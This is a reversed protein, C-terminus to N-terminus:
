KLRGRAISGAMVRFLQPLSSGEAKAIPFYHDCSGPTSSSITNLLEDVGPAVSNSAYSFTNSGATPLTAAPCPHNNAAVTGTAAARSRAWNTLGTGSNYPIPFFGVVYIEVNDDVNALNGDPGRKLRDALDIAEYDWSDPASVNKSPTRITTYTPYTSPVGENGLTTSPGQSFGDTMIVLVKRALGDASAANNRGNTPCPTTSTGWAYCGTTDGNVIKIANSLKTGTFESYASSWTANNDNLQVGDKATPTGNAQPIITYTQRWSKLPCGYSSMTAPSYNTPTAPAAPASPCATASSADSSIRKLKDKDTSLYSLVTSDDYCPATYEGTNSSPGKDLDIYKDNDAAGAPPSGSTGRWWSCKFGAWRAIGLRTGRTVSSSIQMQEIFADVAQRLYVLDSGGSLEMSGTLDLSLMVDVMGGTSVATASQNLTTSNIGIAKWFSTPKVVTGSVQMTDNSAGTVSASPAFSFSAGNVGQQYGNSQLYAIAAQQGDYNRTGSAPNVANGQTSATSLVLARAGALAAADLANQLRSSEVVILGYDVGAGALGMLSTLLVAMYVAIQGKVRRASLTKWGQCWQMISNLRERRM